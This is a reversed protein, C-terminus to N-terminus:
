GGGGSPESSWRLSLLCLVNTATASQNIEQAKAFIAEDPDADKPVPSDRIMEHYIRHQVRRGPYKIHHM